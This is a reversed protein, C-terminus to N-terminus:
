TLPCRRRSRLGGEFDKICFCSATTIPVLYKLLELLRDRRQVEFRECLELPMNEECVLPMFDARAGKWFASEVFRGTWWDRWHGLTRRDINLHQRLCKVRRPSLGHNLASVLVVIVGAYVKRGLFRVSPPTTRHRKQACTFSHRRTWDTPGGRPKRAYNDRHLKSECRQCGADKCKQALDLDVKELLQRLTEDALYNQYMEERPKKDNVSFLFGERLALKTLTTELEL